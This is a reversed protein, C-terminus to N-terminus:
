EDDDDRQNGGAAPMGRGGAILPKPPTWGINKGTKKDVVTRNGKADIVVKGVGGPIPVEDGQQAAQVKADLQQQGRVQEPDSVRITGASDGVVIKSDPTLMYKLAGARAAANIEASKVRAGGLLRRGELGYEGTIEAKKLEGAITAATTARHTNATMGAAALSTEHAADALPVKTLSDLSQANANVRQTQAAYADIGLKQNTRDLKSQFLADWSGPLPRNGARDTFPSPGGGGGPGEPAQAAAAMLQPLYQSINTAPATNYPQTLGPASPAAAPAPPAPPAVPNATPPYLMGADSRAGTDVAPAVPVPVPAVAPKPAAPAADTTNLLGKGFDRVGSAAAGVLFRPVAVSMKGVDDVVEGVAGAGARVAAGARQMLPKTNDIVTPPPTGTTTMTPRMYDDAM